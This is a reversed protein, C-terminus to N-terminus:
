AAMSERGADQSRLDSRRLIRVRRPPSPPAELEYACTRRMVHEAEIWESGRRVRLCLPCAILDRDANVALDKRGNHKVRLSDGQLADADDRGGAMPWQRNRSTAGVQYGSPRALYVM